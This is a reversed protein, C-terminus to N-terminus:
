EVEDVVLIGECETRNRIVLVILREHFNASRGGTGAAHRDRQGKQRFDGDTSIKSTPCIGNCLSSRKDRSRKKKMSLETVPRSEFM